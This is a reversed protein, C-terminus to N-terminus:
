HGAVPGNARREFARPHTAFAQQTRIYLKITSMYFWHLSVNWPTECIKIPLFDKELGRYTTHQRITNDCMVFYHSM